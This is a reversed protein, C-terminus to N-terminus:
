MGLLAPYILVHYFGTSNMANAVAKIVIHDAFMRKVFVWVM